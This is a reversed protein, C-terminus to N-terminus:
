RPPGAVARPAPRARAGRPGAERSSGFTRVHSGSTRWAARILAGAASAAKALANLAARARMRARKAEVSQAIDSAAGRIERAARRTAAGTQRAAGRRSSPKM